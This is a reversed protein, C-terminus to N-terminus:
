TNDGIKIFQEMHMGRSGKLLVHDNKSIEKNLFTVLAAKSKFFMGSSGFTEISYQTLEGFGLLLDLGKIKAYEGIQKHFKKRYRGLENMDGLLLIRRGPFKALVDIAAKVSDPNANYSDDILTSQNIWPQLHLRQSENKFVKLSELFFEIDENLQLTAIFAALINLINHNGLLATRVNFKRTLYKSEISFTTGARTTKVNSAFFSATADLGFTLFSIDDRLGKWHKVHEGNPLIAVGNSRINHVLESKVDLVGRLSNLGALHSHGIHTIIGIDPKIIKSLFEIDGKKTAGMEFIAAKDTSDLMLASLPLGIENNYNKFTSFSKKIGANLINKTTTKGNSGTIGIIPGNFKKLASKALTILAREPSNVALTNASLKLLPPNQQAKIITLAAGRQLAHDSYISGDQHSGTLGIFVSHKSVKRSDIQFDKIVIKHNGEAGLSLLIDSTNNIFKM